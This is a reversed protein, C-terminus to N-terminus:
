RHFRTISGERGVVRGGYYFHPYPSDPEVIGGMAKHLRHPTHRSQPPNANYEQSISPIDPQFNNPNWTDRSSPFTFVQPGRFVDAMDWNRGHWYDPNNWVM